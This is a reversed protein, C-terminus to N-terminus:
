TESLSLAPLANSMCLSQLKWQACACAKASAFLQRLTVVRTM